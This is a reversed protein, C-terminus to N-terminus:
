RNENCNWFEKVEYCFESASDTKFLGQPGLYLWFTNVFTECEEIEDPSDALSCVSYILLKEHIEQYKDTALLNFLGSVTDICPKCDGNVNSQPQFSDISLDCLNYQSIKQFPM